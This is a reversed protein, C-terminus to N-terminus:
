VWRTDKTAVGGIKNRLTFAGAGERVIARARAARPNRGRAARM